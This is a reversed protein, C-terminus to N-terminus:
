QTNAWPHTGTAASEVPGFNNAGLFSYQSGAANGTASNRVVTNGSTGVGVSIGLGTNGHVSNDDITNNAGAVDIGVTDGTSVNNRSVRGFDGIVAIGFGGSDSIANDSVIGTAGGDFAIGAGTSNSVHNHHAYASDGIRIGIQDNSSACGEVVAGALASIGYASNSSSACESLSSNQVDFGVVNDAATCRTVSSLLAQVGLNNERATCGTISGNTVVIGNLVNQHAHVNELIVSQSVFGFLNFGHQTWRRATGNRVTVGRTDSVVGTLGVNNGDLMFGNLDLTVNDSAITIGNEAPAITLNRTLYYNGPQTITIPISTIPTGPLRVGDTSAPAGPPDLPGTYADRALMALVGLLALFVLVLM